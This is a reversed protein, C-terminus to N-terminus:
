EHVRKQKYTRLHHDVRRGTENVSPVMACLALMGTCGLRCDYGVNGSRGVICGICGNFQDLIIWGNSGCKLGKTGKVGAGRVWCLSVSVM